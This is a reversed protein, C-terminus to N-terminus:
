IGEADLFKSLDHPHIGEVSFSVAGSRRNSPPGYVM